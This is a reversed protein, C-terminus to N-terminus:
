SEPFHSALGNRRPSLFSLPDGSLLRHNIGHRLRIRGVSRAFIPPVIGVFGAAAWWRAEAYGAGVGGAVM